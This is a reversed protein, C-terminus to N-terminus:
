LRYKERFDMEKQTAAKIFDWVRRTPGQVDSNHLAAIAHRHWAKLEGNSFDYWYEPKTM